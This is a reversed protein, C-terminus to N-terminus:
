VYNWPLDPQLIHYDTFTVKVTRKVAVRLSFKIGRFYGVDLM